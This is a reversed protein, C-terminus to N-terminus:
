RESSYRNDSTDETVATSRNAPKEPCDAAGPITERAVVKSQVSFAIQSIGPMEGSIKNMFDSIDAMKRIAAPALKRL